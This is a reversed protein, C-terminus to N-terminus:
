QGPHTVLNRDIAYVRIKEEGYEATYTHIGDLMRNGM